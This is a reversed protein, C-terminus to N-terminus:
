EAAYQPAYGRAFDLRWGEFGLTANLWSIWDALGAQVEESTHDLDTPPPPPSCTPTHPNTLPPYATPCPAALRYTCYTPRFPTPPYTPPRAPPPTLPLWSRHCPLVRSPTSGNVLSSRFLSTRATLVRSKTAPNSSSAHCRAGAPQVARGTAGVAGPWPWPALWPLCHLSPQSAFPSPKLPASRLVPAPCPLHLPPPPAPTPGSRPAGPAALFDDGTDNAGLGPFVPDDGCIAWEGWDLRRGPHDVDDSRPTPGSTPAPAPAPTFVPRVSGGHPLPLPHLLFHLMVDCALM